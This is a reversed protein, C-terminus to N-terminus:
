NLKYSWLVVFAKNELDLKKKVITGIYVCLSAFYPEEIGEVRRIGVTQSSKVM